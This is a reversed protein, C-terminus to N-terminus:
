KLSSFDTEFRPIGNIEKKELQEYHLGMLMGNEESNEVWMVKVVGRLKLRKFEFIANTGPKVNIYEDLFIMLGDQSVNKTVFHYTVDNFVIQGPATMNKRYAKRKYLVNEVNYSLNSFELALLIEGDISDVRVLAAEGQLRMDPLYFDIISCVKIADFVDKIDKIVVNDELVVLMGTISLNRIKINLEEGALFVRGRSGLTQRYFREKDTM